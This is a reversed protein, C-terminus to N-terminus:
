SLYYRTLKKFNDDNNFLIKCREFGKVGMKERLKSNELKKFYDYLEEIENFLFGTENHKIADKNGIINTAVIPKKLAMAELVAIPLGEWLSTQIYIDLNNLNNFLNRQNEIWGTVKINSSNLENKLEGDGIWIFNYDPFRLAIENFLKPGRAITIRGVIGITLKKSLEKENITIIKKLDIGNRILISKGIDSAIEFETDGCAVITANSIKSTIKEIYRFFTRKGLSIDKRLFSFGHPSYFVKVKDHLFISILRGLVGAKSSHLHLINPSIEKITKFIKISSNIDNLPSIKEAMSIEILEIQNDFDNKFKENSIKKRNLSFIIFVSFRIDKFGILFNSLDRIYSYTGSDFSEVIHLVKVKKVLIKNKVICKCYSLINENYIYFLYNIKFFLYENKILGKCNSDSIM